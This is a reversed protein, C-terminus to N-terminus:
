WISEKYRNFYDPPKDIHPIVNVSVWINFLSCDQSLIWKTM